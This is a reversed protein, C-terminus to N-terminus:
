YPSAGGAKAKTTPTAGACIEKMAAALENSAHRLMPADASCMLHRFGRSAWTECEKVSGVHIGAAKKNKEAAAVVKEAAKIFDPHDTKGPIGLNISLDTPGIVLV